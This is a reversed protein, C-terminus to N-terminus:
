IHVLRNFDLFSMTLSSPVSSISFSKRDWLWPIIHDKFLADRWWSPPLIRNCELPRNDFPQMYGVCMEQLEVPLRRFATKLPVALEPDADAKPIRRLDSFIFATLTKETRPDEVFALPHDLLPFDTIFSWALYSPSHLLDRIFEDLSANYSPVGFYNHPEYIPGVLLRQNGANEYTTMPSLMRQKWIRYLPSMSPKDGEATRYEPLFLSQYSCFKEVVELCGSHLPIPLRDLANVSMDIAVSTRVGAEYVLFSDSRGQFSGPRLCELIIDNYCSNTKPVQGPNVFTNTLNATVDPRLLVPEMWEISRDRDRVLHRRPGM